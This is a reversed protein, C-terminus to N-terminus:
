VDDDDSITKLKLNLFKFTRKAFILIHTTLNVLNIKVMVGHIHVGFLM